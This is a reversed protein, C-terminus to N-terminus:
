VSWRRRWAHSCVHFHWYVTLCGVFRRGVSLVRRRCAPCLCMGVRFCPGGAGGVWSWFEVVISMSWIRWRSCRGVGSSIARRGWMFMGVSCWCWHTVGGMAVSLCMFRVRPSLATPYKSLFLPSSNMAHLRHYQYLFLAM